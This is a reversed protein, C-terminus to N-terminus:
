PQRYSKRPRAPLGFGRMLSYALLRLRGKTWWQNNASSADFGVWGIPVRRVNVGSRRMLRVVQRLHLFPQAVPIVAFSDQCRLYELAQRWVENTDLYQGARSYIVKDVHVSKNSLQKAIEWQSVILVRSCNKSIDEVFEALRVNCPNPELAPARMGFSFAVIATLQDAEPM